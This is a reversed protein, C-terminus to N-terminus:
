FAALFGLRQNVTKGDIVTTALMSRLFWKPRSGTLSIGILTRFLNARRGFAVSRLRRSRTRSRKGGSNFLIITSGQARARARIRKINILM